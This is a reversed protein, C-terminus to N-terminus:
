DEHVQQVQEKLRTMVRGKALYVAAVSLGLERAAEKGSKGEVATLWFAKWTSEAFAGRIQAAAWAFLQRDYERDWQAAQTAQDAEPQECLVNYADTGGGGHDAPKRRSLFTSVKNRVVTFLWSRFSGRAPDYDLDKAARSVSHLVEQTMDAADADQLGRRRCFGYVLPAYIEVFQDWAAEDQSDRIRVLLSPRTIPLDAM